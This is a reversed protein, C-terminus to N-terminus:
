LKGSTLSFSREPCANQGKPPALHGIGRTTDFFHATQGHEAATAYRRQPKKSSGMGHIAMIWAPQNQHPDASLSANAQASRDACAITELHTLVRKLRAQLRRHQAPTLKEPIVFDAIGV